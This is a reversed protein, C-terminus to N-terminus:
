QSNAADYAAQAEAQSAYETSNYAWQGARSGYTYQNVGVNAALWAAYSANDIDTAQASLAATENGYVTQNYAWTNSHPAPFGDTQLFVSPAFQNVGVNLSIWNSYYKEFADAENTAETSSYAWQGNRSGAGSYQNVGTNAALWTQYATEQTALFDAVATNAAAESEYETQGYAWQGNKVGPGTYQNVGVNAALWAQYAAENVVAEAAEAEAQSAYETSNYAWQGYHTAESDVPNGYASVFQNVGVNNQLWGAYNYQSDLALARTDFPGNQNHFWKGNNSGVGSYQDVGSNAAFWTAFPGAFTVSGSVTGNNVATEEAFTANGSVTAGAKNQANGEFVANGTVTGSNASGTQFTVNGTVTGFNESGAGFTADCAISINQVM